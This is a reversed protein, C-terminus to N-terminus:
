LEDGKFQLLQKVTESLEHIDRSTQKKFSENDEKLSVLTKKCEELLSIADSLVDEKTTIYWENGDFIIVDNATPKKLKSMNKIDLAVKM